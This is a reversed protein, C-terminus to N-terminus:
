KRSVFLVFLLKEKSPFILIEVVIEGILSIFIKRCNGIEFAFSKSHSWLFYKSILKDIIILFKKFCCQFFNWDFSFFYISNSTLPADFNESCILLCLQLLICLRIWPSKTGKLLWCLRWPSVTIQLTPQSPLCHKAFCQARVLPTNPVIFLYFERTPSM